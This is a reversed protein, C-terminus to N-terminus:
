YRRKLRAHYEGCTSDLSAPFLKRLEGANCMEVLANVHSQCERERRLRPYDSKTEDATEGDLYSFWTEINWTPVFVAVREDPTRMGIGAGECAKDLEGIRGDVGVRDGDLIVVLVSNIHLRRHAKLERPFQQRVYQEASGRGAPAKEVRM